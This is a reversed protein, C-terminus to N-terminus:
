AAAWAADPLFVRRPPSRRRSRSVRGNQAPTWIDDAAAAVIVKQEPSELDTSADYTTWRMRKVHAMVSKLRVIARRKTAPALAKGGKGAVVIHRSTSSLISALCRGPIRVARAWRPMFCAACAASPCM